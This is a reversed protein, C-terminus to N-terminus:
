INNIKKKKATEMKIEELKEIESEMTKKLMLRVPKYGDVIYPANRSNLEPGKNKLTVPLIFESIISKGDDTFSFEGGCDDRIIKEALNRNFESALKDSETLDERGSKSKIVTKLVGDKECIVQVSVSSRLPSLKLHCKLLNAAGASLLKHDILRYCKVDTVEMSVKRRVGKLCEKTDECVTLLLRSVNCNAGSDTRKPFLTKFYNEMDTEIASLLRDRSDALDANEADNSKESLKKNIMELEELKAQSEKLFLNVHDAASTNSIMKFVQYTTKVTVTYGDVTRVSKILPIVTLLATEKRYTAKYHTEKDPRDAKIESIDLENFFDECNTWQLKFNKDYVASIGDLSSLYSTLGKLVSSVM